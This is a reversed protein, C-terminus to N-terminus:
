EGGRKPIDSIELSQLKIFALTQHLEGKELIYIYIDTPITRQSELEECATKIIQEVEEWPIHSKFTIKGM